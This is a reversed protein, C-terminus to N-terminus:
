KAINMNRVHGLWVLLTLNCHIMDALEAVVCVQLSTAPDCYRHKTRHSAFGDIHIEIM